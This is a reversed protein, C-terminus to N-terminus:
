IGVFHKVFAATPAAANKLFAPSLLLPLPLILWAAAYLRNKPGKLVGRKRLCRELSVGLAQLLFYSTPGGYIAGPRDYVPGTIAAEHVFGSLLFGVWLAVAPSFRRAVPSFVADRTLLAFATNWRRGWFEALTAASLPRNMLPVADVGRTRLALALLHFAGFHLAFVFGAAACLGGLVAKDREALAGGLLFLLVGGLTGVSGRLWETADPAAAAGHLFQRRELGPWCAWIAERRWDGRGPNLAFAWLKAALWLGVSLAALRVVPELATM